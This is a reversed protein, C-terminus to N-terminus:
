QEDKKEEKVIVLTDLIPKLNGIVQMDKISVAKVGKKFFKELDKMGEDSMIVHSVVIPNIIDPNPNYIGICQFQSHKMMVDDFGDKYDIFHLVGISTMYMVLDYGKHPMPPTNTMNQYYLVKGDTEIQLVTNDYMSRVCVSFDIPAYSDAYAEETTDYYKTHDKLIEEIKTDKQVHIPDVRLAKLDVCLIM